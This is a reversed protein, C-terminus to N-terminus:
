GRVGECVIEVLGTRCGLVIGVWDRLCGLGIEVGGGGVRVTESGFVAGVGGEERQRNKGGEGGEM